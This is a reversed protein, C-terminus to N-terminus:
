WTVGLEAAARVGSALGDEHFGNGHHAGAYYTHRRGSLSPLERQAHLSDVTYLPHEYVVRRIVHEDDVSENLTVCYETEGPLSQLRNLSYTVTPRGDDGLRYNWAARATRARPLLRQDTHLVAENRTYGFAGLVRSEDESPDGLLALAQDAHTAIVTKDFRHREGDDTTLEVGDADRRLSRAGLGLQLRSGLSDSLARVYTDAGGSVTRWSFRRVGLMGHNDFFRIAYAAPFELARGPATSWLASTLPVLFHRRFRLSYRREDLYAELSHREYDREDLSRRATRLWRGIEWLLAGFRPSTANRRQAFPRRGSYELGCSACGVSFSMDSEQTRVGLEALLRVLLPYNRTNHVLFGTDLALGDHAITHSHGGARKDREFVTVDHARHLLHAVGLGSIGSGVVAIRM